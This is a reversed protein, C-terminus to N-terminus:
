DVSWWVAWFVLEGTTSRMGVGGEVYGVQGEGDSHDSFAVLTTFQLWDFNRSLVHDILVWFPGSV